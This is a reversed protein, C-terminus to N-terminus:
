ANREEALELAASAQDLEEDLDHNGQEREIVIDRLATLAAVLSDHANVCKVIHEANVIAEGRMDSVLTYALAYADRESGIKIYGDTDRFSREDVHWPRPTAEM